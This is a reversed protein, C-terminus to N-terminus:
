SPQTTENKPEENEKSKIAMKLLDSLGSLKDAMKQQMDDRVMDNVICAKAKELHGLVVFRNGGFLEIGDDDSQALIALSEIEEGDLCEESIIKKIKEVIDANSM